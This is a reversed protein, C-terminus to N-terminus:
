SRRRFLTNVYFGGTGTGVVELAPHGAVYRDIWKGGRILARGWWSSEFLEGQRSNGLLLYGGPALAEVLKARAARVLHPRCFAELVDMAVVLDFREAVPDGRLDWTAFRV